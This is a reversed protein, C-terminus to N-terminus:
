KVEIVAYPSIKWFDEPIEIELKTIKGDEEILKYSNAPHESILKVKKANLPISRNETIDIKTFYDENFDDLLTKNKGLGLFGGEKSVVGNDNLERFTGSAIYAKNLENVQQTIIEEKQVIIEEKYTITDGFAVVQNQLSDKQYTVEALMVKQQEVQISLDVIQANQQEINENLKAIKNRFSSLQIGSNKLKKELEEMEKSSEELMANMMKIDRIISEKKSLTSESNELVLQSRKENIFTLNSEITDLTSILDNVMSDREFLVEELGTKESSLQSIELKGKNVMIIGGIVIALFAVAVLGSITIALRKTKKTERKEM